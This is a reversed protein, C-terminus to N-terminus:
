IQWGATSFKYERSSAYTEAGESGIPDVFTVSVSARKPDPEGGANPPSPFEIIKPNVM